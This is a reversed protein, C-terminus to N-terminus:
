LTEKPTEPALALRLAGTSKLLHHLIEQRNKDGNPTCAEAIALIGVTSM